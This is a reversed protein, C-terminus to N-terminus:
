LFVGTNYDRKLLIAPRLTQLKILFLIWFLQKGISNVSSLLVGKKFLMQSFSSREVNSCTEVYCLTFAISLTIYYIGVITM